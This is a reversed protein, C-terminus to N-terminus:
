GGIMKKLVEHGDVCDVEGLVAKQLLRRRVVVRLETEPRVRGEGEASEALEELDLRVHVQGREARLGHDFEAVGADRSGDEVDRPAPALNSNLAM